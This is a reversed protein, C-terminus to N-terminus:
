VCQWGGIKKRRMSYSRSGHLRNVRIRTVGANQAGKFFESFHCNRRGSHAPSVLEAFGFGRRTSAFRPLRLVIGPTNKGFRPELPLTRPKTGVSASVRETSHM